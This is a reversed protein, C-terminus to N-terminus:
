HRLPMHASLWPGPENQVAAYLRLEEGLGDCEARFVDTAFAPENNTESLHALVIRRTGHEIASRALRAGDENSLHGYHSAIRQKLYWPYPGLRLMEPDHNAECVLLDPGALADAVAGDWRGLDTIVGLSGGPSDFRFAVTDAADHSVPIPRIVLGDITEPRGGFRRVSAGDPVVRRIKRLTGGTAWLTPRHRRLLLELSRVHDTHEHTIFIHEVDAIDRGIERIRGALTRYSFGADVLMASSGVEVWYANGKSGSGLTCIRIGDEAARM